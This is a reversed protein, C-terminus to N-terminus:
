LNARHSYSEVTKKDGDTSYDSCYWGLSIMQQKDACTMPQYVKFQISFLGGSPCLECQKADYSNLISIGDEIEQNNSLVMGSEYFEEFM